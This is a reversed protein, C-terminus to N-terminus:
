RAADPPDATSHVPFTQQDDPTRFELFFTWENGGVNDVYVLLENWGTRLTTNVRDQGRSAGRLIRNRHVEQRNIWVVVGDDSGISLKVPQEQAAYVWTLLYGADKQAGTLIRSLPVNDNEARYPQWRLERGEFTRPENLAIPAGALADVLKGDEMLPVPGLLQWDPIFPQRLQLRLNQLALDREGITRELVAIREQLERAALDRIADDEQKARLRDEMSRAAADATEAVRRQRAESNRLEDITARLRAEENDSESNPQPAAAPAPSTVSAALAASSTNAPTPRSWSLRRVWSQVAPHREAWLALAAGALLGILLARGRGRSASLSTNRVPKDIAAAPDGLLTELPSHPWPAECAPCVDEPDEGILVFGCQPCTHTVM